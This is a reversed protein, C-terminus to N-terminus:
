GQRQAPGAEDDERARQVVGEVLEQLEKRGPGGFSFNLYLNGGASLQAINRTKDSSRVLSVDSTEEAILAPLHEPDLVMDSIEPQLFRWAVAEYLIEPPLLKLVRPSLVQAAAPGLISVDAWYTMQTKAFSMLKRVLPVLQLRGSLALWEELAAAVASQVAARGMGECVNRSDGATDDMILTDNDDDFSYMTDQLRLQLEKRGGGTGVVVKLTLGPNSALANGLEQLLADGTGVADAFLLLSRVPELATPVAVRRATDVRAYLLDLWLQVLEASVPQSEDELVM